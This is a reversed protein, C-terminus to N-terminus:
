NGPAAAAAVMMGRGGECPVRKRHTPRVNDNYRLTHSPIWNKRTHRQVISKIATVEDIFMVVGSPSRRRARGGSNLQKTDSSPEMQSADRRGLLLLFFPARM